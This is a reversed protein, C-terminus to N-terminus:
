GSAPDCPDGVTCDPPPQRITAFIDDTLSEGLGPLDRCVFLNESDLFPVPQGGFYTMWMGEPCEYWYREYVTFHDEGSIMVNDPNDCPLNYRRHTVFYTSTRTRELYGTNTPDGDPRAAITSWTGQSVLTAGGEPCQSIHTGIWMGWAEIVSGTEGFPCTAWDCVAGPDVGTPNPLYGLRWGEGFGGENTFPHDPVAYHYKLKNTPYPYASIGSDVRELLQGPPEHQSRMIAELEALNNSTHVVSDPDTYQYIPDSLGAHGALPAVALIAAAVVAFFDRLLYRGSGYM